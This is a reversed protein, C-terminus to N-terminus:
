IQRIYRPQIRAARVGARPGPPWFLFRRIQGHDSEDIRLNGLV